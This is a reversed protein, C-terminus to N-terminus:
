GSPVLEGAGRLPVRVGVAGGRGGWWQGEVVM